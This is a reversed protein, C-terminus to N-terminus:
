TFAARVLEPTAVLEAPTFIEAAATVESVVVILYTKIL